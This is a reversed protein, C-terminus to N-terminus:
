SWPPFYKYNQGLAEQRANLIKAKELNKEEETFETSDVLDLADIYTQFGAGLYGEKWYHETNLYKEDDFEEEIETEVHGDLQEIRSHKKAMHVSLGNEWKSTFECIFCKFESAQEAEPKKSQNEQMIKETTEEDAVIETAEGAVIADIAEEAVTNDFAEEALIVDDTAEKAVIDTKCQEVNPTPVETQPPLQAASNGAAADALVQRKEQRRQYSPSRHNRRLFQGNHLYPPPPPPAYGLSTELIVFAQGHESKIKLSAQYGAHWLHKFKTVFSDIENSAM